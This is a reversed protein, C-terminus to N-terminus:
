VRERCSARGIEKTAKTTLEPLNDMKCFKAELVEFGINFQTDSSVTAKFYFVYDSVAKKPKRYKERQLVALPRDIEIDIGVEESVEKIANEKPSIFLDCWGGPVTWKKQDAEKVFLVEDKENVIMVRVSVNPTPYIDRVFLNEEIKEEFSQNLFDLSISELEEYDERAHDDETYKQGIKAISLVKTIYQEITM